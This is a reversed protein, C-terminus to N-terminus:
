GSLMYKERWFHLLDLSSAQGFFEASRAEDMQLMLIEVLTCQIQRM